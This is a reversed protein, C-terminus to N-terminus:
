YFTRNRVKFNPNKSIVLPLFQQYSSRGVVMMFRINEEMGTEGTFTLSYTWFWYAGIELKPPRLSLKILNRLPIAMEQQDKVRIIYLNEDDFEIVKRDKMVFQIVAFSAAALCGSVLFDISALEPFLDIIKGSIGSILVFVLLLITSVIKQGVSFKAALRQRM